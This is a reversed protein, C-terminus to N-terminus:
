LYGGLGFTDPKEPAAPEGAQQQLLESAQQFPVPLYVCGAPGERKTMYQAVRVASKLNAFAGIAAHLHQCCVIYIQGDKKTAM